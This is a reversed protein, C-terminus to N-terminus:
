WTGATPEDTVSVAISDLVALFEARDNGTLQLLEHAMNELGRVATDPDIEGPDSHEMLLMASIIAKVLPEPDV